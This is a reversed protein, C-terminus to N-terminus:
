HLHIRVRQQSRNYGPLDGSHGQNTPPPQVNRALPDRIMGVIVEKAESVAERINSPQQSQAFRPDAYMPNGVGEMRRSQPPPYGGGGGGGQYQQHPSPAYSASVGGGGVGGYGSGGMSSPAETYVADLAEKAAKRVRENAEDGRVPDMAGRYNLAEKIVAVHQANQSVARRFAPVSACIKAIVKCCKQKIAPSQKTELRRCLYTAMDGAAAPNSAAARSLDVYLYGPTPADTGDTARALMGRDM